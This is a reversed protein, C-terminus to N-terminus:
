DGVFGEWLVINNLTHHDSIDFHDSQPATVRFSTSPDNFSGGAVLFYDEDTHDFVGFIGLPGDQSDSTQDAVISTVTLRVFMGEEGKALRSWSLLVGTM